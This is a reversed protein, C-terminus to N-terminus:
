KISFNLYIIVQFAKDLADIIDNEIDEETVEEPYYSNLVWCYALGNNWDKGLNFIPVKNQCMRQAWSVLVSKGDSM